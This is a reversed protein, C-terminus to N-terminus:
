KDLKEGIFLIRNKSINIEERLICRKEFECKFNELTYEKPLQRLRSRSKKSWLGLPMYEVFIYKNGYDAIIDLTKGMTLGQSLILHHTLALAVVAENKMRKRAENHDRSKSMVINVVGINLPLPNKMNKLRRYMKDVAWEDYDIALSYEIVNQEICMQSFAGQNAALETISRVQYKKLYGAVVQFRENEKIRGEEDFYIDQYGSWDLHHGAEIKREFDTLKDFKKELLAFNTKQIGVRFFKNENLVEGIIIGYLYENWEKEDIGGDALYINTVSRKMKRWMYLPRYYKEEMARIFLSVSKENAVIISGLDIHYAKIGKWIINYPHYDMFTYGYKLLVKEMELMLKAANLLMSFSWETPYIINKIRESRLFMGYENTDSFSMDVIEIPLIMEKKILENIFGRKFMRKVRGLACRNNYIGRYFNKDDYFVRGLQDISVSVWEFDKVSCVM